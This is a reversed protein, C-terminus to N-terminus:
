WTSVVRGASTCPECVVKAHCNGTLFDLEAFCEKVCLPQGEEDTKQRCTAACAAPLETRFQEECAKSRMRSGIKQPLITLEDVFSALANHAQHHTSMLGLTGTYARTSVPMMADPAAAAPSGDSSTVVSHPQPARMPGPRAAQVQAKMTMLGM